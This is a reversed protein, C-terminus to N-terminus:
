AQAPPLDTTLEPLSKFASVGHRAIFEVSRDISATQEEIMATIVMGLRMAPSAPATTGPRLSLPREPEVIARTEIKGIEGDLDLTISTSVMLYGGRLVLVSSVGPGAM